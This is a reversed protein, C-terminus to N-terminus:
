RISKLIFEIAYPPEYLLITVVIQDPKLLEAVLTNAVEASIFILNIKNIM